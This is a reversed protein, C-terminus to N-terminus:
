KPEIHYHNNHYVVDYNARYHQQQEDSLRHWDAPKIDIANGTLHYSNKAAPAGAAILADNQEKSRYISNAVPLYGLDSAIEGYIQRGMQGVNQAGYQGASLIDMPQQQQMYPNGMGAEMALMDNEQGQMMRRQVDLDNLAVQTDVQEVSPAAPVTGKTAGEVEEDEFIFDFLQKPTYGGQQYPNGRPRKKKTKGGKKMTRYTAASGSDAREQTSIPSVAGSDLFNRWEDRTNFYIVRQKSPVNEDRVTVSYSTPKRSVDTQRGSPQIPNITTMDAGQVDTNPINREQPVYRPPSPAQSGEIVPQVPKQFEPRYYGSPTRRYGIPMNDRRIGLELHRQAAEPSGYWWDGSLAQFAEQPSVVPSDSAGDKAQIERAHNYLSLSDQYAKLRPNKASVTVPPLKGGQQLPIERVKSGKFKYPNKRGAKMVKANGMNDVGLLDIPTNEMTILGEPTQIDLYPHSSFPSGHAYGLLSQLDM